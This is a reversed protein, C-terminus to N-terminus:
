INKKKKYHINVKIKLKCHVNQMKMNIEFMQLTFYCEYQPSSFNM